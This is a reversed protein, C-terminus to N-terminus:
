VPLWITFITGKGAIGESIVEIQGQHREVIERAIALGLGTGSAGSKRGATGRFFRQFLNSQEKAPIGPGNDKVSIGVWDKGAIERQHSSVVVRGGAPTYNLANTMLVSLAQGLLGEDGQISPLNANGEAVLTLKKNEALPVRDDVFQMALARLNLPARKLEERGQDLRSLRLLDEILLNLRNIERELREMYINLRQPDRQMLSYNVKISTIPTRLEHSVNSVFEDKMREVEKLTTVDRLICVAGMMRTEERILALAMDAEFTTQDARQAIVELRLTKRRVMVQHVADRVAEVHDPIVLDTLPTKHSEDSNARFLTFFAPNAAEVCAYRDLLLIPDPCNDLISQLRDKVEQIEITREKAEQRYQELSDNFVREVQKRETIDTITAVVVSVDGLNLPVLSIAVPFETRDSRCGALDLGSGIPRATRHNTYAQTHRRHSDRLREPILVDVSQGLIEDHSYGFLQEAQPNVQIIHGQADFIVIADASHQFFQRFFPESEFLATNTDIRKTM